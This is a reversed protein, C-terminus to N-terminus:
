LITQGYNAADKIKKIRQLLASQAIAIRYRSKLYERIEAPSKGLGLLDAIKRNLSNM